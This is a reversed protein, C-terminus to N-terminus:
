PKRWCRDPLNSNEARGGLLDDELHIATLLDYDLVKCCKLNSDLSTKRSKGIAKRMRNIASQCTGCASPAPVNMPCASCIASRRAAEASSCFTPSSTVRDFVKSLWNYVRNEMTTPPKQGPPKSAAISTPSISAIYENIEQQVTQWDRRSSMRYETVKLVLKQYSEAQLRVDGEWFHWGDPHTPPVQQNIQVM